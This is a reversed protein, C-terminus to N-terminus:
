YLVNERLGLLLCAVSTVLELFITLTVFCAAKLLMHFFRGHPVDALSDEKRLAGPISPCLM